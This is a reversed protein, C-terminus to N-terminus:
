KEEKFEGVKLFKKMRYALYQERMLARFAEYKYDDGLEKLAKAMWEHWHDLCDINM